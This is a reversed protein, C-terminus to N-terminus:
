GWLSRAPTTELKFQDALMSFVTEILNRKGRLWRRGRAAAKSAPRQSPKLSVLVARGARKAAEHFPEGSYGNDTLVYHGAQGSSTREALMEGAVERESANAATLALGVVAGHDTLLGHLRLGFFVRKESPIYGYDAEPISRRGSQSHAFMVTEIPASDVVLWRAGAALSQGVHRLLLAQVAWLAKRRRHYRGRSLLQPFLQRYNRAVFRHFSRESDNSLAEQMLSLTIVESDSFAIRRYQSRHRIPAPTVEQYLDDIICFLLLVMDELSLTAENM